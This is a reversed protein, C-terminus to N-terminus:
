GNGVNLIMGLNWGENGNNSILSKHSDYSLYMGSATALLLLGGFDQARHLCDQALDFRGKETAMDALQKWKQESELQKALEQAAALDGLQVALEFKHDPDTSVALAQQKFGQKELFHAVRTRQEKPITPLVQFLSPPAITFTM